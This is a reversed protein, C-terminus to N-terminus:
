RLVRALSMLHRDLTWEPPKLYSFTAITLRPREHRPPQAAEIRARLATWARASDPTASAVDRLGDRLLCDLDDAERFRAAM